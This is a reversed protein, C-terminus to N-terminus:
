KRKFLSAFFSFVGKRKKKPQAQSRVSSFRNKTEDFGFVVDAEKEIKPIAVFQLEKYNGINEIPIWCEQESDWYTVDDLTEEEIDLNASVDYQGDSSKMLIYAEVLEYTVNDYNLVPKQWTEDIEENEEEDLAFIWIPNEQMDQLTVDEMPKPKGYTMEISYVNKYDIGKLGFAKM